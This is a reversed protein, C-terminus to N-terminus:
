RRSIYFPRMGAQGVGTINNHKLISSYEENMKEKLQKETYGFKTNVKGASRSFPPNM